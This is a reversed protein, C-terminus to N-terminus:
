RIHPAGNPGRKVVQLNKPSQANNQRIERPRAIQAAGHSGRTIISPFGKASSSPRVQADQPIRDVKVQRAAGHPGRTVTITEATAPSIFGLGLVTLGALIAVQNNRTM